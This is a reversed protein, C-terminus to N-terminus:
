SNTCIKLIEELSNIVRSLGNRMEGLRLVMIHLM